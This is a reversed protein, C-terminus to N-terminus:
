KGRENEEGILKEMEITAQEIATAIKNEFKQAVLYIIYCMERTMYDEFPSAKWIMLVERKIDNLITALFPNDQLEKAMRGVKIIDPDYDPKEKLAKNGKGFIKELLKERSKAM